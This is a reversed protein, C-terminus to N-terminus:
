VTAISILRGVFSPSDGSVTVGGSSFAFAFRLELEDALSLLGRRGLFLFSLAFALALPLEFLLRFALLLRGAAFAFLFTLETSTGRALTFRLSERFELVRGPLVGPLLEFLLV